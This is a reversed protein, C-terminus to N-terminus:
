YTPSDLRWGDATKIMTIKVNVSKKGDLFSPFSATIRDPEDAVVTMASFDYTRGVRLATEALDIRVTLFADQEIYRAFAIMSEDETSVGTFAIEYMTECVAPSFIAATAERIESETQFPAEKSVPMYHVSVDTGEALGHLAAVADEDEIYPLGEGYYIENLVYSAEVLEKYTERIEDASLGSKGCASLTFVSLVFVAFLVTKIFTKM